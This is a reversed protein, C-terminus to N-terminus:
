LVQRYVIYLSDAVLRADGSFIAGHTEWPDAEAETGSVAATDATGLRARIQPEYVRTDSLKLSLSMRPGTVLTVFFFHLTSRCAHLQQM